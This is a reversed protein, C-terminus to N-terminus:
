PPLPLISFHLGKGELDQHLAELWRFPYAVRRRNYCEDSVNSKQNILLIQTITKYRNARKILEVLPSFSDISMITPRFTFIVGTEANIKRYISLFLSYIM